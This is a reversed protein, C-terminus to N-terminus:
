EGLADWLESMPEDFTDSITIPMGRLPYNKVSTDSTKYPIIRAVPLGRDTLIVQSQTINMEEIIAALKIDTEQLNIYKM